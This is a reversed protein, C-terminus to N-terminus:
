MAYSSLILSCVLLYNRILVMTSIFLLHTISHQPEQSSHCARLIRQLVRLHSSSCSSCWQFLTDPPCLRQCLEMKNMSYCNMSSLRKEFQEKKKKKKQSHQTKTTACPSERTTTLPPQERATAQLSLKTTSPSLQGIAQPINRSWPDFM